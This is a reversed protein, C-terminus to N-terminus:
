KFDEVIIGCKLIVWVGVINFDMRFKSVRNSVGGGGCGDYVGGGGGGGGGGGFGGGDGDGCDDWWMGVVVVMPLIAAVRDNSTRNKSKTVRSLHYDHCRSM